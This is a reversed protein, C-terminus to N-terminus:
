SVLNTAKLNPVNIAVYGGMSGDMQHLAAVALV